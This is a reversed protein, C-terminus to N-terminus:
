GTLTYLADHADVLPAIQKLFYETKFTNQHLFIPILHLTPTSLPLHGYTSRLTSAERLRSWGSSSGSTTAPTASSEASSSSSTTSTSSGEACKTFFFLYHANAEYSYFCIQVYLIKYCEEESSGLCKGVTAIHTNNWTNNDVITTRNAMQATQYGYDWWSMFKADEDTNTRMWAYAERYDDYMHIGGDPKNVRVIVAPSSYMESTVWRSHVATFCCMLFVCGCVAWGMEKDVRTSPPIVPPAGGQKRKVVKKVLKLLSVDMFLTYTRSVAIGSMICMIPAVVLMLRIMISSFYLSTAYYALLFLTADSWEAVAYFVGVPAFFLLLGFDYWYSAWTSGQHEAVSSVIAMKSGMPNLLFAFRGDSGIGTASLLVLSVFVGVIGVACYKTVLIARKQGLHTRMFQVVGHGQFLLFVAHGIIHTMSFVGSFGVFPILLNFLMGLTYYTTYAVYLRHSYRGLVVMGYCYLPILNAIYIYGGWTTVMFGYSCAAGAGWSLSGTQVSKVFFYFANILAFIAVAENDYSGAM